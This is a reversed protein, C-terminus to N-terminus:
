SEHCGASRVAVSCGRSVVVEDPESPVGNMDQQMVCAQQQRSTAKNVGMPAPNVGGGGVCVGVGVGVCGCVWVGVRVSVFYVVEGIFGMKMVMVAVV